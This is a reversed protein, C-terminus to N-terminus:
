QEVPELLTAWTLYQEPLWEPTRWEQGIIKAKIMGAVAEACAYARPMGHGSYGAAIYQGEYDESKAIPDNTSALPFVPGVFPNGTKTFGMIGTWEMEWADSDADAAAFQGPLFGPLFERLARSVLPNLESDDMVWTELRGGSRQRAGGLIILPNKLNSSDQYRPFWYEWGGGGGNWSNLWGLESANVSARVTGVQGRTPMIMSLGRAPPFTEEPHGPNPRPPSPPPPLHHDKGKRRRYRLPFTFSPRCIWENRSDRILLRRGRSSLATDM